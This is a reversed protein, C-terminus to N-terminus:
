DKFLYDDEKLVIEKVSDKSIRSCRMASPRVPYSKGDVKFYFKKSRFAPTIIDFYNFNRIFFVRNNIIIFGSYVYHPNDVSIPDIILCSYVSISSDLDYNHFEFTISRDHTITDLPENSFDVRKLWTEFYEEVHEDRFKYEQIVFPKYDPKNYISLTLLYLFYFNM